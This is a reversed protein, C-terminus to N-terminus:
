CSEPGPFDVDVRVHRRGLESRGVVRYRLSDLGDTAADLGSRLRCARRANDESLAPDELPKRREKRPDLNRYRGNRCVPRFPELFGGARCEGVQGSVVEVAPPFAGFDIEWAPRPGRGVILDRIAAGSLAGNWFSVRAIDGSYYASSEVGSFATQRHGIVYAEGDFAHADPPISKCDAHSEGGIGNVLLRMEGQEQDVVRTVHEWGSGRLAPPWMSSGRIWASVVRGRSAPYYVSMYSDWSYEILPLGQCNLLPFRKTFTSDIAGNGSELGEIPSCPRVLMNITHSGSGLSRPGPTRSSVVCRTSRGDFHMYRIAPDGAEVTASLAYGGFVCRTFLDDDECGWGWYKGSYGNIQVFQELSFMVVGGFFDLSPRKYRWSDIGGILAVPRNGPPSYDCSDDEPLFDVDHFVFTQFGDRRALDFGVNKLTGRNFPLANAQHVVYIRYDHGGAVLFEAMHPLFQALQAERDRYPVVIALPSPV